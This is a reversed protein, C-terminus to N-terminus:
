KPRPASRSAAPWVSWCLAWLARRCCAPRAGALFVSQVETGGLRDGWHALELLLTDLYDRLLPSAAPEVGRGLAVSHFACYNCRTRCFPVHIYVLM